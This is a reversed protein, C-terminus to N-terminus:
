PKVKKFGNLVVSVLAPGTVITGVYALYRRVSRVDVAIAQVKNSASVTTFTANPVDAYTSGDASDQLKGALTGTIAGVQQVISLVGEYGTLDIGSGTAAATNAASVANLLIAPTNQTLVVSTATM